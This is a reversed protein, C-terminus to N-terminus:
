GIVRVYGRNDRYNGAEKGDDWHLGIYVRKNSPETLRRMMTNQDPLEM